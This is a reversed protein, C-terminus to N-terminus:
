RVAPGVTHGLSFPQEATVERGDKLYVRLRVCWRLKFLQGDYSLPGGPLTTAIVRSETRLLRQVEDDTLSEFYHVGLDTSGKGETYWMVSVEVREVDEPDVRQVRYEFELLELPELRPQLTLLRVGLAPETRRKM